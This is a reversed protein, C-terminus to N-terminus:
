ISVCVSECRQFLNFPLFSCVFAVLIVFGWGMEQRSSRVIFSEEWVFGLAEKQLLIKELVFHGRMTVYCVVDGNIRATVLSTFVDAVDEGQGSAVM